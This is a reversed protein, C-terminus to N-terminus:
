SLEVESVNPLQMSDGLDVVGIPTGQKSGIVGPPEEPSEANVLPERGRIMRLGLSLYFVEVFPHLCVDTHETVLLLVIPCVKEWGSLESVIVVGM